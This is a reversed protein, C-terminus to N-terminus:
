RQDALQKPAHTMPEMAVHEERSRRRKKSFVVVAEAEKERVGNFCFPMRDNGYSTRVISMNTPSSYLWWSARGGGIEDLRSRGRHTMEWFAYEFWFNTDIRSSSRIEM